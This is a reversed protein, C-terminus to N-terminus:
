LSPSKPQTEYFGLVARITENPQNKFQLSHARLLARTEKRLDKRLDILDKDRRINVYREQGGMRVYERITYEYWRELVMARMVEKLYKTHRALAAASGSRYIQEYYGTALGGDPSARYILTDGHITFYDVLQRVVEIYNGRELVLKDSTIDYVLNQNAYKFGDYAITGRSFPIDRYFPSSNGITPPASYLKGSRVYRPTTDQAAVKIFTLSYFLIVCM